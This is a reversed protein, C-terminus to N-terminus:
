DFNRILGGVLGDSRLRGGVIGRGRVGGGGLVGGGGGGMAVLELVCVIVAGLVSTRGLAWVIPEEGIVELGRVDGGVLWNDGVSVPSLTDAV